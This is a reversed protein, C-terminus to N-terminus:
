EFIRMQSSFTLRDAPPGIAGGRDPEKVWDTHDPGIGNEVFPAHNRAKHWEVEEDSLSRAPKGLSFLWWAGNHWRYEQRLLRAMKSCVIRAAQKIKDRDTM